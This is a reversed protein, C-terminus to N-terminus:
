TNSTNSTNSTNNATNTNSSMNTYCSYCTSAGGGGWFMENDSSYSTSSQNQNQSHQLASSFIGGLAPFSVNGGSTHRYSSYSQYGPATHGYSSSSHSGWTPVSTAASHFIGFMNSFFGLNGAGGTSTTAGISTKQKM